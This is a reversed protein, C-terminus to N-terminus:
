VLILKYESSPPPTPGFRSQIFSGLAGLMLGASFIVYGSYGTTWQGTMMYEQYVGYGGFGVIYFMYLSILWGLAKAGRMGGLYMLQILQSLAFLAVMVQGATGAEMVAQWWGQFGNYEGFVGWLFAGAQLTLGLAILQTPM